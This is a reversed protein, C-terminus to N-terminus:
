VSAPSHRRVRDSPPEFPPPPSTTATRMATRAFRFADNRRDIDGWAWHGFTVFPVHRGRRAVLLEYAINSVQSAFFTGVFFDCSALTDIDLLIALTTNASQSDGNHVSNVGRHMGGAPFARCSFGAWSQCAVVAAADDSALFIRSVGYRKRMADAADRYAGFTSSCIGRQSMGSDRSCKDGRRIHMGITPQHSGDVGWGLTAHRRHRFDAAIHPLLRFIFAVGQAHLWFGGRGHHVESGYCVENADQSSGWGMNTPKLVAALQRGHDRLPEEDLPCTFWRHAVMPEFFCEFSRRALCGSRGETRAHVAGQAHNAFADDVDNPLYTRGHLRAWVLWSSMQHLMGGVGDFHLKPMLAASYNVHARMQQREFESALREADRMAAADVAANLREAPPLFTKYEGYEVHQTVHCLDVCTSGGDDIVGCGTRVHEAACPGTHAIESASIIRRARRAVESRALSLATELSAHLPSHTPLAHVRSALLKHKRHLVRLEVRQESAHKELREAV